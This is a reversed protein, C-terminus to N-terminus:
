GISSREAAIGGMVPSNMALNSSAAELTPSSNRGGLCCHAFTDAPLPAVEGQRIVVSACSQVKLGVQQYLLTVRHVDTEFHQHQQHRGGIFM